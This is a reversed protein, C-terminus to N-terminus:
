PACGVRTSLSRVRGIYAKGCMMHTVIHVRVSADLTSNSGPQSAIIYVTSPVGKCPIDTKRVFSQASPDHIWTNSAAGISVSSHFVYNRGVFSFFTCAGEDGLGGAISHEADRPVALINLWRINTEESCSCVSISVWDTACCTSGVRKPQDRRAL